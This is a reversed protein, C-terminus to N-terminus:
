RRQLHLLAAELCSGAQKVSSLVELVPRPDSLPLSSLRTISELSFPHHFSPKPRYLRRTRWFPYRQHCCLDTLFHPTRDRQLSSLGEGAPAAGTMGVRSRSGGAHFKGLWHIFIAFFLVCNKELQLTGPSCLAQSPLVRLWTEGAGILWSVSTGRRACTPAKWLHVSSGVCSWPHHHCSTATALDGGVLESGFSAACGGLFLQTLPM